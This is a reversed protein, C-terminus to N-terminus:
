LFSNIVASFTRYDDIHSYHGSDKLVVLGSNKIEKEFIEGMYLPTADDKDGWILLTEAKIDKLIPRINENVVVVLIKRMVGSSAQYDDSGHKKRFQELREEKNGFPMNKYLWRMVKFSYVKIYYDMGRKPILGASDVLILKDVMEPHRSAIISSIKGGFSHGIFTANKVNIEDLFKLVVKVYDYSSFVEKPEDSKGFGPLDLLVIRYRDKLLNSIPIMTEISTGWGHLLVVTSSFDGEDVYNLKLNEIIIEM